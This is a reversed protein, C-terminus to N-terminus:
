FVYRLKEHAPISKYRIVVIPSLAPRNSLADFFCSFSTIKNDGGTTQTWGDVIGGALQLRHL